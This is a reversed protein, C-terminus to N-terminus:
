RSLDEVSELRFDTYVEGERFQAIRAPLFELGPLAWLRTRRSSGERRQVYVQADFTGEPTEIRVTDEHEYRYTKLGDEDVLVYPGVAGGRALDRMFTVQMSGRDLAGEVLTHETSASDHEIVVRGASWDFDARFNDEGKRSGDEYEFSLPRIEGDVLEFRSRELLPNPRLLRVLGRAETRSEFVYKGDGTETVSFTSTGLNRGKYDVDYTATYQAVPEGDASQAVGGVTGAALAFAAVIAAARSRTRM